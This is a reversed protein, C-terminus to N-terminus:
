ADTQLKPSLLAGQSQLWHPVQQEEQCAASAIIILNAQMSIIRIAYQQGKGELAHAPREKCPGISSTCNVCLNRSRKKGGPVTETEKETDSEPETETETLPTNENRPLVPSPIKPSVIVRKLLDSSVLRTQKM